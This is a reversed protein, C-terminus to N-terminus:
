YQSGRPRIRTMPRLLPCKRTPSIFVKPLKRSYNIYCISVCKLGFPRLGIPIHEIINYSSSMRRMKIWHPVESVRTVWCDGGWTHTEVVRDIQSSQVLGVWEGKVLPSKVEDIRWGHTERVGDMPIVHWGQVCMWPFEARGHGHSGRVEDNNLVM